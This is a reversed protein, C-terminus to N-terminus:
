RFDTDLIDLVNGSPDDIVAIALNGWGHNYFSVTWAFGQFWAYERVGKQMSLVAKVRPESKAINIIADAQRRPSIEPKPRKLQVQLNGVDVEPPLGASSRKALIRLLTAHQLYADRFQAYNKLGDTGSVSRPTDAGKSYAIPIREYQAACMEAADAELQLVKAYDGEAKAAAKLARFFTAYIGFDYFKNPYYPLWTAIFKAIRQREANLIPEPTESKEWAAKACDRHFQRQEQIEWRRRKHARQGSRMDTVNTIAIPLRM